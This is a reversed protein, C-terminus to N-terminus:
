TKKTDDLTQQLVAIISEMWATRATRDHLVCMHKGHLVVEQPSMFGM